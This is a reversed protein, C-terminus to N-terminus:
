LGFLRKIDIPVKQLDLSNEGQKRLLSLMSNLYNYLKKNLVQMM